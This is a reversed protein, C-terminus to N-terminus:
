LVAVDDDNDDAVLDDIDTDFDEDPAVKAVAVTRSRTFAKDTATQHHIVLAAVVLAAALGGLAPLRPRGFFRQWGSVNTEARVERVVNRAFFPSVPPQPAKGLFDWLEKDDERNM